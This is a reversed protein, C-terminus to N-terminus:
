NVLFIEARRNGAEGTPMVEYFVPAADALATVLIQNTPVGMRVLQRAVADARDSSIQFNVMKHKVPDMSRTRSSAHGVVQLRGGQQNVIGAVKRLIGLDRSGLKASGHNFHITAVKVSGSSPPPAGAQRSLAATPAVSAARGGVRVDQDAIGSFSVGDSSVVVTAFPDTNAPLLESASRMTLPADGAGEPVRAALQEAFTKRFDEPAKAPTVEHAPPPPPAPEGFRSGMPPVGGEGGPIGGAIAPASPPAAAMETGTAGLARVAEGQRGVADAYYREPSDAILGEVMRRRQERSSIAPREPVTRLSPFPKDAGPAPQNRQAVVRPARGEALVDMDGEDEGSFFEVTDHYWEAPNLADPVSSCGSVSVVAAMLLSMWLGRGVGSPARALISKSTQM